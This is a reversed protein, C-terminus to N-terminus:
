LEWFVGGRLHPPTPPPASILRLSYLHHEGLEQSRVGSEQSRVGLEQSRRLLNGYAVPLMITKKTV